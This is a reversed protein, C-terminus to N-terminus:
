AESGKLQNKHTLLRAITKKNATKVHPKEIGSTAKEIRMEFLSKRLEEVKSDVDKATLSKIDTMKM